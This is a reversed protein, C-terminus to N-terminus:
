KYNKSGLAASFMGYIIASDYVVLGPAHYFRKRIISKILSALPNKKLINALLTRFGYKAYWGKGYWAASCIFDKMTAPNDHYCIASPADLALYGLKKSLTL